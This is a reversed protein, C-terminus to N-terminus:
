QINIDGINRNASGTDADHVTGTITIIGDIAAGGALGLISKTDGDRTGVGGVGGNM